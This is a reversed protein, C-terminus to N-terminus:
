LITSHDINYTYEGDEDNVTVLTQRKSAYLYKVKDVDVSLVDAVFKQVTAFDFDKVIRVANEHNPPVFSLVNKPTTGGKLASWLQRHGDETIFTTVGNVTISLGGNVDNENVTIWLNKKM